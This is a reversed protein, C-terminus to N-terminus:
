DPFHPPPQRMSPIQKGMAGMGREQNSGRFTPHPPASNTAEAQPNVRGWKTARGEARDSGTFEGGSRGNNAKNTHIPMNPSLDCASTFWGYGRGMHYPGLRKLDRGRKPNTQAIHIEGTDNNHQLCQNGIMQNRPATKRM